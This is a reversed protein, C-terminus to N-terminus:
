TGIEPPTVFYFNTTGGALVMNTTGIAYYYKTNPKLDAIQVIHETLVGPSSATLDLKLPDKGFRVRSTNGEATRWRVVVSNPTFQQLYPGRVVTQAFVDSRAMACGAFLLAPILLNRMNLGSLM